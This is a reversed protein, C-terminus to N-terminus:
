AIVRGFDTAMDLHKGETFTHRSANRCVIGHRSKGAQKSCISTAYRLYKVIVGM